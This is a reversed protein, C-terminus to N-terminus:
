GFVTHARRGFGARTPELVAFYRKRGWRHDFTGSGVQMQRQGGNKCLEWCELEASACSEADVVGTHRDANRTRSLSSMSWPELSCTCSAIRSKPVKASRIDPPLLVPFENPAQDIRKLMHEIALVFRHGRGPYRKEYWRFDAALERAAAPRFRIM